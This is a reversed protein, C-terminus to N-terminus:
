FESADKRPRLDLCRSTNTTSTKFRNLKGGATASDLIKLNSQSLDIPAWVAKGMSDVIVEQALTLREGEEAHQDLLYAKEDKTDAM